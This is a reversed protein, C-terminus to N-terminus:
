SAVLKYLSDAVSIAVHYVGLSYPLPVYYNSLNKALDSALLTQGFMFYFHDIFSARFSKTWNPFVSFTMELICWDRTERWQILVTQLGVPHALFSAGNKYTM